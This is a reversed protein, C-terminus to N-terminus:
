SALRTQDSAGTVLPDETGHGTGQGVINKLCQNKYANQTRPACKKDMRMSGKKKGKISSLIVQGSSTHKTVSLKCKYSGDNMLVPFLKTRGSSM